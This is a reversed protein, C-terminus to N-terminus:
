IWAAFFADKDGKDFSTSLDNLLSQGNPNAQTKQPLRQLEQQLLAASDLLKLRVLHDVVM